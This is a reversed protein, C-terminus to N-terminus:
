ILTPPNVGMWKFFNIPTFKERHGWTFLARCSEGDLLQATGKGGGSEWGRVNHMLQWQPPPVQEERIIRLPRMLHNFGQTFAPLSPLFIITVM